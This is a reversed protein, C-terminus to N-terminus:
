LLPASQLGVWFAGVLLIVTFVAYAGNRFGADREAKLELSRLDEDSIPRNLSSNQITQM